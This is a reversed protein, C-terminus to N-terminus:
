QISLRGINLSASRNTSAQQVIGIKQITMGEFESLDFTVSTWSNITKVSASPSSLDFFARGRNELDLYVQTGSSDGSFVVNLSFPNKLSLFTGYLPIDIDFDTQTNELLLSSGGDFVTDFDYRVNKVILNDAKTTQNNNSLVAFQWTPLPSQQRIDTWEGSLLVGEEVRKKGQGTNFTTEFPLTTLTTKAPVYRGIGKWGEDPYFPNLDDGGFLQQEGEYFSMVREPHEKFNAYPSPLTSNPSDYNYNFNPAFLAISGLGRTGNEVFLDDIWTDNEFAKQATRSPWLDAGVYVDYPSRGIELAKQHSNQIMPQDWWYNLFIADASAVDDQLFMKNNDNLANQWKVEGSMVMSDYWHIEMEKPAKATLYKMFTLLQKALRKGTEPDKEDKVLNNNEDKISTLHTEQNILWGDFGYYDAIRILQDAFIFHGQDDQELFLEMTAPNGGWQDIAFFVSGIVKVGNKHATEVWPKAPIQVTHDATGAFWNLVDIYPWHTFNYLNFSEQTTLYNSFNNMGDPAYLVKVSTDLSKQAANLFTPRRNALPVSSVNSATSLTSNPSWEKVQALTLAFPPKDSIITTSSVPTSPVIPEESNLETCGTNFLACALSLLPATFPQSLLGPKNKRKIM